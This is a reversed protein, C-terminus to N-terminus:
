KINENWPYQNLNKLYYERVELNPKTKKPIKKLEKVLSNLGQLCFPQGCDDSTYQTIKPLHLYTIPYQGWLVSKATVESFGDHKNLRLGCQMNQIEKNMKEKPVRGHVIVNKLPQWLWKAGYVHFEIEPLACAIGAVIGWGYEEQRGENASLYVKNGPKFMVAYDKVNGMFSQGIHINKIGCDKLMWAEAETEVWNECYKNLWQALAWPKNKRGGQFGLNIEGGEELWYGKRFQLVDSGAWLIYKKGRHRWLEYFDPLGYLGFFCVPEDKNIYETAGWVEQPTGELAGLSPAVRVQM